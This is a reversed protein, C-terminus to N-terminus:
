LPTTAAASFAASLPPDLPSMQVLSGGLLESREDAFAGLPHAARM